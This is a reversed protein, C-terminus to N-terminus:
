IGSKRNAQAQSEWKKAIFAQQAPLIVTVREFGPPVALRDQHASWVKSVAQSIAGPTVGLEQVYQKQPVGKVLVGHAIQVTQEEINLGQIALAFQAETMTKKAMFRM